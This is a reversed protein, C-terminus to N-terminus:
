VGGGGGGLKEMPLSPPINSNSQWYNAGLIDESRCLRKYGSKTHIHVMMPWLTMHFIHKQKWLLPWLSLETYDFYSQRSYEQLWVYNSPLDDLTWHIYQIASDLTLTMLVKLQKPSIKMVVWGKTVWSPIMTCVSHLRVGWFHPQQKCPSPWLSPKYTWFIVTKVIDESSIITKCGFWSQYYVM